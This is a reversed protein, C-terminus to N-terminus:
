DLIDSILLLMMPAFGGERAEFQELTPLQQPREISPGDIIVYTEVVSTAGKLASLHM